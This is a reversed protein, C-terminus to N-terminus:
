PLITPIVPISDHITEREMEMVIGLIIRIIAIGLIIRIIVIGLIIRIEMATGLIIRIIVIEDDQPIQEVPDHLFRRLVLIVKIWLAPLTM